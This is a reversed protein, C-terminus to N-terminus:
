NKIIKQVTTQQLSTIKIIYPGEPFKDLDIATEPSVAIIDVLRKGTVSYIQIISPLNESLLRINLKGTVPNPYINEKSGFSENIGATIHAQQTINIIQSVTNAASITLTAQRTISLLNASATLMITASDSGSLSSTTLWEESSTITWDTNSLIDFSAVSNLTDGITLASVSVSLNPIGAEQTVSITQSAIGTGSVTISATRETSAPNASVILTVTGNNSGSSPSVTLWTDSSSVNWSIASTIDFHVDNSGSAEVILSKASVVIQDSFKVAGGGYTGFWKNGKNDFTIAGVKDSLSGQSEPSYNAWDTGNFKSVGYETGFWKNGQEDIAVCLIDNDPLGM